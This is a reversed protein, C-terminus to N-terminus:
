QRPREAQTLDAVIESVIEGVSRNADLERWRSPLDGPTQQAAAVAADADSVDFARGAVRALRVDLPADLWYAYATAGASAGAIAERASATLFTADAVVSAGAGIAAAARAALDDYVEARREATYADAGARQDTALGLRSKRLVDSRLLRAGAPGPLLPALAAAVSSKGSGSLGGVAVLVPARRALLEDALTRYIRAEALDGAEAAVAMRVAARLAAFFPLLQLAGEDEGAMDWYRNLAANAQARLGVRRLDMLLFAIDYLVDTTALRQDFELADFPTPEGEFLCINRL